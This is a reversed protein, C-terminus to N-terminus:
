TIIIIKDQYLIFERKCSYHHESSFKIVEASLLQQYQTQFLQLKNSEVWLVNM